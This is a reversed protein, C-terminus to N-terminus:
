SPALSFHTHVARLHRGDERLVITARGPRPREGGDPDVAVFARTGFGVVELAFLERCRAYDLARVCQEM